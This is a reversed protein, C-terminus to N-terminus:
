TCLNTRKTASMIHPLTMSVQTNHAGQSSARIPQLLYTSRVLSADPVRIALGQSRHLFSLDEDVRSRTMSTLVKIQALSTPFPDISVQTNQTLRRAWTAPFTM